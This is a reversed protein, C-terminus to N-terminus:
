TVYAPTSPLRQAEGVPQMIYVVTPDNPDVVASQLDAFAERSPPAPPPEAAAAAAAAARRVYDLYAAALPFFTGIGGEKFSLTFGVSGAQDM